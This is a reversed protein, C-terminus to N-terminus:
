TIKYTIFNSYNPIGAYTQTVPPSFNGNYVNVVTVNYDGKTANLPVVFSLNFSSYFTIPINKLGGFNVYTVGNCPPIFNSGNIYVRSYAGAVSTTVSLNSIVPTFSPLFGKYKLCRNIVKTVPQEADPNQYNINRTCAM